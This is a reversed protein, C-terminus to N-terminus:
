NIANRMRVLKPINTLIKVGQCNREVVGLFDSLAHIEFNTVPMFCNEGDKTIVFVFDMRKIQGEIRKDKEFRMIAEPCMADGINRLLFRKSGVIISDIDCLSIEYKIVSDPIFDSFINPKEPTKYPFLGNKWVSLVVKEGDTALYTPFIANLRIMVYSLGMIAAVIYWFSFLYSQWAISIGALILGILSISGVVSIKIMYERRVKKSLSVKSLYEM